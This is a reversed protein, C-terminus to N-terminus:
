DGRSKSQSFVRKKRLSVSASSRAREELCGAFIARSLLFFCLGFHALFILIKNCFFSFSSLFSLCVHANTGGIGFSNVSAREIRDKPWPTAEVPVQLKAEKFSVLSRSDTITILYFMRLFKSKPNPKEFYVNPPITQHELALVTKIISTIASAGESHGVNPKVQLKVM